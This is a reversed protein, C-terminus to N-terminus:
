AEDYEKNDMAMAILDDDMLSRDEENEGYSPYEEDELAELDEDTLNEEAEDADPLDTELISNETHTLGGFWNFAVAEEVEAEEDSEDGVDGEPVDEAEEKHCGEEVTDEASDTDTEADEPAEEAEEGFAAFSEVAAGVATTDVGEVNDDPKVEGARAATDCDDAIPDEKNETGDFAASPIEQSVGEENGKNEADVEGERADQDDSAEEAEEGFTTFSECTCKANGCNPCVDDHAHSEASNEKGTVEKGDGVEGGVELEKKVTGEPKEEKDDNYANDEPISVDDKGDVEADAEEKDIADLINEAEEDDIVDFSEDIGSVLEILTDDTDFMMNFSLEKETCDAFVSDMSLKSM